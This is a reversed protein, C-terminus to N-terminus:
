GARLAVATEKLKLAIIEIRESPVQDVTGTVSLAAVFRGLRDTVPVAVCRVGMEEEEDDVAYGLRRIEEVERNLARPSTITNRTHRM